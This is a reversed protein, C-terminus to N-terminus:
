QSATHPLQRGTFYDHERGHLRTSPVAPSTGYKRDLRAHHLAFLCLDRSLGSHNIYLFAAKREISSSFLSFFIYHFFGREKGRLGQGMERTDMSKSLPGFYTRQVTNHGCARTSVGFLDPHPPTSLCKLSSTSLCEETSKVEIM